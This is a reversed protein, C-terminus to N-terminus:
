VRIPDVVVISPKFESIERHMTVLHMELGYFFARNAVIRLLGKNLAPQLDIGVSGGCAPHLAIPKDIEIRRTWGAKGRAGSDLGSSVESQARTRGHIRAM